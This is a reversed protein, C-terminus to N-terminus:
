HAPFDTSGADESDFLMTAGGSKSLLKLSEQHLALEADDARIVKLAGPQRNLFVVKSAEDGKTQKADDDLILSTQGGTMMLYVDALIRADLLAGHLERHANDIGYRKCLADLSNRQGPHMERAMSLSDLVSCYDKMGGLSLDQRTLEANIFGVDFPANHIVVEAGRIYELFSQSIEAWLPKDDLFENTIGHVEIAGQDIVREPNFYYHFDNGTLRRNVLEKGALMQDIATNALQDVRENENHGSHGKVWRWEINLPEALADLREWLDQNKVPKRAATKWGRRKWDKVWKTVGDMVYRSDTTLIIPHHNKNISQLAAIAAMMEMRNNTTERESGLLEKETGNFRLIAGWGGPGPNGRCAGDTFIEIVSM